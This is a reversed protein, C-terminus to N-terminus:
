NLHNHRHIHDFLNTIWVRVVLAPRSGLVHLRWPRHQLYAIFNWSGLDSRLGGSCEGSGGDNEAMDVVFICAPKEVFGFQYAYLNHM